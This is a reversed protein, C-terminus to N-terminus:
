GDSKVTLAARRAAEHQQLALAAEEATVSTFSIVDGPRIRGLADIDAAIICGIKTYGGMTGHDAMAIIPQGDAPVQLVGRMMADSIIDAPGKHPLAAGQLRMGMRSTQPSVKYTTELLAEIAEQKFWFDQPGLMLRLTTRKAFIERQCHHSLAPTGGAKGLPVVDGAQLIRGEIGGIKANPTAGTGGYIVPVDLGGAICLLVSLSDGFPPVTIIDGAGVEIVDCTQYESIEGAPTEVTLKAGISGVLTIRSAVDYQISFGGFCIEIGNTNPENGLLINGIALAERDLAGGTPVGLHQYGFRGRDQITSYPGAQLITVSM